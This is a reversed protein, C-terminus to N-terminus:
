FKSVFRGLLEQSFPDKIRLFDHKLFVRNIILCWPIIFYIKEGINTCDVLHTYSVAGSAVSSTSPVDDGSASDSSSDSQPHVIADDSDATSDDSESEVDM